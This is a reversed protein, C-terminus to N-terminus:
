QPQRHQSREINGVFVVDQLFFVVKQRSLEIAAGAFEGYGQIFNQFIAFCSLKRCSGRRVIASKVNLDGDRKIVQPLQFAAPDAGTFIAYIKKIAQHFHSPGSAM